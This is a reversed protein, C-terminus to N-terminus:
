YLQPHINQKIRHCQIVKEMMQQQCTNPVYQCCSEKRSSVCVSVYQVHIRRLYMYWVHIKRGQKMNVSPLLLSLPSNLTASKTSHCQRSVQNVRLLFNMSITDRFNKPSARIGSYFIPHFHRTQYIMLTNKHTLSYSQIM